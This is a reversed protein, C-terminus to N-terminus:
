ENTRGPFGAYKGVAPTPRFLGREACLPRITMAAKTRASPYSSVKDRKVHRFPISRLMHSICHLRARKKDDSQSSTCVASSHRANFMLDRAQCYDVQPAAIRHGDLEAEVATVSRRDIRATLRREQEDMGVELRLKILIIGGDVIYKEGTPASCLSAITNRPRASARSM